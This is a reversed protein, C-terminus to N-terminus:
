MSMRSGARSQLLCVTDQMCPKEQLKTLLGLLAGERHHRPPPPPPHHRGVLLEAELGARQPRAANSPRQDRRILLLRLKLKMNKQSAPPALPLGLETGSHERTM